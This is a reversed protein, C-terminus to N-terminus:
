GSEDEGGVDVDDAESDSGEERSGEAPKAAPKRTPSTLLLVVATVLLAVGLPGLIFIVLASWVNLAM